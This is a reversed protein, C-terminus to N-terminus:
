PPPSPRFDRRPQCDLWEIASIRGPHFGEELKEMTEPKHCERLNRGVLEDINNTKKFLKSCMPNAYIIKFDPDSAVIALKLNEFIGAVDTM